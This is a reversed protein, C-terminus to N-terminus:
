DRSYHPRIVMKFTFLNSDCPCILEANSPVFKINKGAVDDFDEVHVVYRGECEIVIRNTYQISGEMQGPLASNEEETKLSVTASYQSGSLSFLDVVPIMPFRILKLLDEPIASNERAAAWRELGNLIINESRVVLDSRSLLAKVLDFPLNEWAPSRILAECNWALFRVCVEQLAEDETLVAYEYISNLSQFTPDEPLFLRLISLTENQFEVLGWDFAMKLICLASSLTVKIKRTYFYRVFDNAHQSCVSTVDISLSSFDPQLTKLNSDLSLIVKHACLTEITNNDVVVAINLDCDRGSDFLEGLQHSLSAIHYLSYEITDRKTSEKKCKVGVDENHNCNHIGWGPFTCHLLNVETGICGLDDMWINGDGLVFDAVSYSLSLEAMQVLYQTFLCLHKVNKHKHWVVKLKLPDFDFQTKNGGGFSVMAERAGPFRLQRCVAQAENIDWGDDCVTGWSGNHFIEVRGESHDQGGALRVFGDEQGASLSFSLLLICLLLTNDKM